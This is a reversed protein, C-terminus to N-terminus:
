PYFAVVVTAKKQAMCSESHRPLKSASSRALAGTRLAGMKKPGSRAGAPALERAVVAMRQTSHHEGRM